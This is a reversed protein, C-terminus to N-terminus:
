TVTKSMNIESIKFRERQYYTTSSQLQKTFFVTDSTAIIVSLFRIIKLNVSLVSKCHNNVNVQM